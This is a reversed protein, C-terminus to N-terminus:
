GHEMDGLENIEGWNRLRYSLHRFYKNRGTSNEKNGAKDVCIVSLCFEGFVFLHKLFTIYIM